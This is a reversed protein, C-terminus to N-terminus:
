SRSEAISRERGQPDGYRKSQLLVDVPAALPSVEQKQFFIASPASTLGKKGGTM